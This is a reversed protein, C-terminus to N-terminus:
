RCGVARIPYRDLFINYGPTDIFNLKSKQWPFAALSSTISLKRAVEEEDFDTVANGEDVKLHRDVAKATYLLTSTLSTKGCHGHGIVAVNRIDASDFVKM